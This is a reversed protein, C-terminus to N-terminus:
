NLLKQRIRRKEAQSLIRWKKFKDHLIACDAESLGKIAAFVQRMKKRKLVSLSRFAESKLRLRAQDQSPLKQWREYELLWNKDGSQTDAPSGPEPLGKSLERCLDYESLFEINRIVDWEIVNIQSPPSFFMRSILVGTIIINLTPALIRHPVHKLPQIEEKIKPWVDICYDDQKVSAMASAAAKIENSIGSCRSCKFIHAEVAAADVAPLEHMHYLAMEKSCQECNM